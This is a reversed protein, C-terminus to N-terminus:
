ARPAADAAGLVPGPLAQPAAPVATFVTRYEVCPCATCELCRICDVSRPNQWISIDMPCTDRCRDCRTCCKEDVRMQYLSFSNFFSFITGLACVTRCFPRKAAASWMSFLSLIGLKLFFFTVLMSRISEDLWSWPLGAILIGDPCLKSFWPEQKVYTFVLVLGTLVVYKGFTLFKPIAIKVTKIKYLMDQFLGFPCLWGCCMRGVTAGIAALYGVVYAPVAQGVIVFHQLTGIPCAFVAGPCAYCNLTPTCYEKLSGQYIAHNQFGPFWGNQSLAVLFQFIRRKM